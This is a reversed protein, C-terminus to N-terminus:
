GQMSLDRILPLRQQIYERASDREEPSLQFFADVQAVLQQTLETSSSTACTSLSTREITEWIHRVLNPSM